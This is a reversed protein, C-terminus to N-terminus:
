EFGFGADISECGSVAWCVSRNSGRRSREVLEVAVLQLADDPVLEAVDEIAAHTQVEAQDPQQVADQEEAQDAQSQERETRTVSAATTAREDRNGERRQDEPEDPLEEGPQDLSAHAPLALPKCVRRRHLEGALRGTKGTRQLLNSVGVLPGGEDVGVGLALDVVHEETLTLTADALQIRSVRRKEVPDLREFGVEIGGFQPCQVILPLAFMGRRRVYM